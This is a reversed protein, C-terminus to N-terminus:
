RNLAADCLLFARGADSEFRARITEREDEISGLSTHFRRAFEALNERLTEDEQIAEHLHRVPDELRHTIVDSM